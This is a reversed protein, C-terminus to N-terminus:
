GSTKMADCCSNFLQVQGPETTEEDSGQSSHHLVHVVSTVQVMFVTAKAQNSPTTKEM